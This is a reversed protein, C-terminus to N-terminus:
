CERFFCYDHHAPLKSGKQQLEGSIRTTMRTHIRRSVPFVLFILGGPSSILFLVRGSIAFHGWLDLPEEHFRLELVFLM